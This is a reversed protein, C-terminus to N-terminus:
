VAEVVGESWLPKLRHEQQVEANILEKCVQIGPMIVRKRDGQLWFLWSAEGQGKVYKWKGKCKQQSIAAILKMQIENIWM